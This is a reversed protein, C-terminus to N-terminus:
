ASSSTSSTRRQRFMNTVSRSLTRLGQLDSYQAHSLWGVLMIWEFLGLKMTYEISLHLVVIALLATRRSAKFWILLPALLEVTLSFWTLARLLPLSNTLFQPVPFHPYFEDLHAVYYLADGSLWQPSNLKHIGSSALIVCMQIQLLRLAWGSGKHSSNGDHLDLPRRLYRDVSFRAGIPMFILLFGMMHFVTDEGYVILM